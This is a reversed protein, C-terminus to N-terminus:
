DTTKTYQITIYISKGLCDTLTAAFGITNPNSSHQNNRVGCRLYQGTTIQVDTANYIFGNNGICAANIVTGYSILAGIDINKWEGSTSSVTSNFTKQYLPKGDIWTGIIKETTSYDTDVGISTASDTSKTYQIIIIYTVNSAAYDGKVDLSINTKDVFSYCWINNSCEPCPGYYKNNSTTQIWFGGVKIVNEVNSIGHAKSHLGDGVATGFNFVKQYLPKGDTWQGVIKETTSYIDSRSFKNAVLEPMGGLYPLIGQYFESLREETVIKNPNTLSM